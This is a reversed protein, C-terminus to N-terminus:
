QYTFDVLMTSSVNGAQVNGLPTKMRAELPFSATRATANVEITMTSGNHVISSNNSQKVEVAINTAASAAPETNAFLQDDTVDPTGSFTATSTTTGAPCNTLDLTFPHWTPDADGSSQFSTSGLTGLPVAQGAALSSSVTCAAAIVKGSINVDAAEAKTGPLVALAPLLMNLLRRKLM